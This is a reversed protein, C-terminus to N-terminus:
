DAKRRLAVRIIDFVGASMLGDVIQGLRVSIHVGTDALTGAPMDDNLVFVIWASALVKDILFDFLVLASAKAVQSSLTHGLHLLSFLFAQTPM